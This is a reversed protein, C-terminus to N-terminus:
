LLLGWAFVASGISIGNRNLVRTCPGFSGHILNPDVDGMPLPLKLPFPPVRQLTYLSERDRSSHLFPQVSRSATQSKSELPGFSANLRPACHRWVAIAMSGDMNKNPM